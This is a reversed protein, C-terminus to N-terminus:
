GESTYSDLEYTVSFFLGWATTPSHDFCAGLV